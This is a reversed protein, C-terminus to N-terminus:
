KIIIVECGVVSAIKEYAEEIDLNNKSTHIGFVKKLRGKDQVELFKIVNELSFHSRVIRKKVVQNVRSAELKEKSYNVEIMIYDLERFRHKIYYTDTAFLLKENTIESHILFGCPEVADHQTSFAIINFTGVKFAKNYEVENVNFENLLNIQQLTGKTAYLPAYKTIDKAFRSHDKHEHTLLCADIKSLDVKYKQILDRISIGIELLLTSHSDTILYGNAVSGSELVKIELKSHFM